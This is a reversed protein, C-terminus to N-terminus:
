CAERCRGCVGSISVNVDDIRFANAGVFWDMAQSLTLPSLCSITRCSKCYFHPHIPNHPCAMEYINMGQETPLERIIRREKFSTLIRYITVKNIKQRPDIRNHIESASIPGDAQIIIELVATRQTTRSLGAGQLTGAANCHENTQIM